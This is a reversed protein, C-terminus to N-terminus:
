VSRSPGGVLLPRPRLGVAGSRRSDSFLARGHKEKFNLMLLSQAVVVLSSLPMAVAAALPTIYGFAAAPIAVANYLLALGLNLSLHFWARRALQLALVAPALGPRLLVMDATEWSLESGNAVCIGLNAKRLAPADNIGDGLFAVVAGQRQLEEVLKVKDLPLCEARFNELGLKEATKAVVAQRDGSALWLQLGHRRLYAIFDAAEARLQDRFQFQGAMEGDVELWVSTLESDLEPRGLFEARGLRLFHGGIRGQVGQGAVLQWDEVALLSSGWARKLAAALPHQCAAELSAAWLLRQDRPGDVMQLQGETLTGTKDVIVHTVRRATEVTQGDRFLLGHRAAVGAALSVVLPTAIGLACPCTIILVSLARDLDHTFVYTLAALFLILPLLVSALRDAAKQIPAPTCQASEVLRAVQALLSTGGLQTLEVELVGDLCLSGGYISDGPQLRRPQSEGTLHSEDASCLGTLVRGDAPVRAGARVQVRDGLKLRDTPVEEFEQGDWRWASHDQLSLLREVALGAKSRAAGELLRGLLLVFVFMAVTDFYVHQRGLLTAGLSYLFTVGLGLSISVDTTLQRQRLANLAGSWFPVASFFVVPLCLVFSLRQFLPRYALDLDAGSYLALAALMDNGAACAAVGFRLLLMRDARARPRENRNPDYPIARYGLRQVRELASVLRDPSDPRFRLRQTSYNVQVEGLGELQGLAREVLWGCAACHLGDLLCHFEGEFLLGRSVEPDRYLALSSAEEVPAASDRYQYYIDLGLSHVLQYAASCGRCCFEEGLSPQGCHRCSM